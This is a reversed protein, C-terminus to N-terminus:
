LGWNVEFKDLSQVLSETKMTSIAGEIVIFYELTYKKDKNSKEIRHVKERLSDTEEGIRGSNDEHDVIGKTTVYSSTEHKPIYVVREEQWSRPTYAPKLCANFIGFLHSTINNPEGSRFTAFHGIAKPGNRTNNHSNVKRGWIPTTRRHSRRYCCPLTRRFM